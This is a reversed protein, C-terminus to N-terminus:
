LAKLVWIVLLVILPYSARLMFENFGSLFSKGIYGELYNIAMKHISLGLVIIMALIVYKAMEVRKNVLRDWFSVDQVYGGPQKAYM